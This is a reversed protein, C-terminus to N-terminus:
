QQRIPTPLMRKATEQWESSINRKPTPGGTVYRSISKDFSFSRTLSDHYRCQLYQCVTIDTITVNIM